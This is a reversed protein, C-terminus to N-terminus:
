IHLMIRYLEDTTNDKMLSTNSLHFRTFSFCQNGGAGGVQISQGALTHLNYRHIIVQCLTVSLPHPLHM